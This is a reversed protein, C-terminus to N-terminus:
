HIIYALINKYLQMLLELYKTFYYKLEQDIIANILLYM